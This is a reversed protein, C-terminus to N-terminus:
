QNEGIHSPCSEPQIEKYTKGLFPDRNWPMRGLIVRMACIGTFGAFLQGAALFVALWFLQPAFLSLFLVFLILGGAAILVQDSMRPPLRLAVVPLGAKKWAELGGNLIYASSFGRDALLLSNNLARRGNRCVFIAARRENEALPLYALATVPALRSDKIHERLYEDSERIDILVARGDEVMERAELPEILNLAGGPVQKSLNPFANSM